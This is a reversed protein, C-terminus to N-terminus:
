FIYGTVVTPNGGHGYGTHEEVYDNPRSDVQTIAFIIVTIVIAVIICITTTILFIIVSAINFVILPIDVLIIIM